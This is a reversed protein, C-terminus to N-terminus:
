KRTQVAGSSGLRQGCYHYCHTSQAKENRRYAKRAQPLSRKFQSMISVKLTISRLRRRVNLLKKKPESDWTISEVLAM